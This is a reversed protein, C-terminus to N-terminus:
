PEFELLLVSIVMRVKAEAEKLQQEAKNKMELLAQQKAELEQIQVHWLDIKNREIVDWLIVQKQKELLETLM